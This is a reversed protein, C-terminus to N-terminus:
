KLNNIIHSGSPNKHSWPSTETANLNKIASEKTTAVEQVM